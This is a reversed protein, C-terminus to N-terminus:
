VLGCCHWSEPTRPRRMGSQDRHPLLAHVDDDFPAVVGVGHTANVNATRTLCYGATYETPSPPPPLSKAEPNTQAQRALTHPDNACNGQTRMNSCTKQPPQFPDHRARRQPATATFGHQAPQGPLDHGDSLVKIIINSCLALPWGSGTQTKMSAQHEWQTRCGAVTLASPRELGESHKEPGGTYIASRACLRRRRKGAVAM